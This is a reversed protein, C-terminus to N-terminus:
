DVMVYHAVLKVIGTGTANAAVNATGILTTEAAFKKFGASQIIGAFPVWIGAVPLHVSVDGTLVDLNGFGDPDAVDTGNAAWGIDFDFAETGTDLDVAQLYGGIVTAGAPVKCFQFIDAATPNTAINYVGWAVHLLNAAGAGGVPYTSAAHSGTFTAM